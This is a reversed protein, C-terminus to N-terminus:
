ACDEPCSEVTEACPCGLAMCVVEACRGDGCENKCGEPSEAEDYVATVDKLKWDELKVHMIATTVGGPNIVSDREFYIEVDFCGPCKLTQVNRVVINRGNHATYESISEIQAKAIDGARDEDTQGAGDEQSTDEEASEECQEEWTRLCKQKAECWSYGASGICGHEDRDNGVMQEEEAPPEEQPTEITETFTHKGDSCQRPYSEMVPNGAAVCEEFSTITKEIVPAEKSCGALLLLVVAAAAIIIISTNRM